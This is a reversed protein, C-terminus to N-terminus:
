PDGRQPEIGGLSLRKMPSALVADMARAVHEVSVRDDAAIVVPTQPLDIEALKATLSPFDSLVSQAVVIRPQAEGAGPALQVVIRQPLDANRDAHGTQTPPESGVTVDREHGFKATLVFFSLLIFVVDVLTTMNVPSDDRETSTEFRM